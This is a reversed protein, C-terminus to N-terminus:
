PWAYEREGTAIDFVQLQGDIILWAQRNTLQVLEGTIILSNGLTINLPTQGGSVGDAINLREVVIRGQDGYGQVLILGGGARWTWVGEGDGSGSSQSVFMRFDNREDDAFQAAEPVYQWLREGTHADLGWVEFRETGRTRRARAVLVGDQALMPTLEYDPDGPLRRFEGEAASVAVLQRRDATYLGDSLLVPELSSAPTEVDGRPAETQWLLQGAAADWKQFTTPPFIGLVTYLAGGAEDAVIPSYLQMTQPDNPFPENPASPELTHLLEGTGPDFVKFIGNNEVADVAVVLGGAIFLRDPTAELRASWAARGSETDVAQVTGDKTLAIVRGALLRVCGECSPGIEDVLSAQWATGGDARRLAVLRAKEIMYVQDDDALVQTSYFGNNAPPPGSWRVSPSLADIYSLAYSSDAVNFTVALVDAPADDVPPLVLADNVRLRASSAIEPVLESVSEPLGPLDSVVSGLGLLALFGPVVAAVSGLATVLVIVVVLCGVWRLVSSGGGATGASGGTHIVIPTAVVNPAAQPVEVVTGCFKCKVTRDDNDVDLPANCSPCKLARLKPM